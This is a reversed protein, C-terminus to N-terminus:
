QIVQANPHDQKFKALASAPIHGPPQGPIQVTISGPPPAPLGSPRAQGHWAQLYRNDGIIENKRNALLPRLATNAAADFQEPTFNRNLVEAAQRLKADSTGGGGAGGGQLIKAIQDDVEVLASRFAAVQPNGAQLKAWQDVANLPPYQTLGVSKAMQTVVALNGGNNDRGVLSNLYNLTNYTQPNTAFKYDGAAKAVDFPRGYKQMSYANAAALTADYSKSRRSLNAPDITGDVLQQANSQIESASSANNLQQTEARAKEAEARNKEIESPVKSANAAAEGTEAATHAIEGPLKAKKDATDEEKGATDAAKNALDAQKQQWALQQNSAALNYADITAQPTLSVTKHSVMQGKIPDFTFFETGANTLQQNYGEPMMYVKFGDHTGDPLVNPVPMVRNQKVQAEHFGPTDRMIDAIGGLDKAVGLFTGGESALRDEQQQYFQVDEQNAKVQQRTLAFSQAALEHKLKQSNAQSLLQEQINKKEADSMETGAEVGAELAKGQNGAGKGAALGAAAGRLAEQGVKIWQNTRTMAPHQIYQNGEQDTYVEPRNTGALSDLTKDILGRIGGKPIPRLVVPATQPQEQPITQGATPDDQQTAIPKTAQAAQLWSNAGTNPGPTPTGSSGTDPAPAPPTATSNDPTTANADPDM